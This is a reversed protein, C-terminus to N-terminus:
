TNIQKGEQEIGTVLPLGIVATPTDGLPHQPKHSKGSSAATSEKGHVQEVVLGTMQCEAVSHRQQEQQLQQQQYIGLVPNLKFFCLTDSFLHM